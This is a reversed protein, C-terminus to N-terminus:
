RRESSPGPALRHRCRRPGTECVTNRHESRFREVDDHHGEFSGVLVALCATEAHAGTLEAACERPEPKAGRQYEDTVGVLRSGLELLAHLEHAPALLDTIAIAVADVLTLQRLNAVDGLRQGIREDVADDPRSGLSSPDSRHEALFPVRRPEALRQAVAQVGETQALAGHEEPVRVVEEAEVGDVPRHELKDGRDRRDALVHLV